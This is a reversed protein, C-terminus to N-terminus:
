AELDALRKDVDRVIRALVEKLQQAEAPVRVAAIQAEYGKQAM